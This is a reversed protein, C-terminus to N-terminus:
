RRGPHIATLSSLRFISFGITVSIIGPSTYLITYIYIYIYIHIYIYSKYHIDIPLSWQSLWMMPSLIQYPIFIDLTFGIVFFCGGNKWAKFFQLFYTGAALNFCLTIYHLMYIYRIWAYGEGPPSSGIRVFIPHYVPHKWGLVGLWQSKSNVRISGTWRQSSTSQLHLPARSPSTTGILEACACRKMPSKRLSHNFTEQFFSSSVWPFTIRAPYFWVTEPCNKHKLGMFIFIIFPSTWHLSMM